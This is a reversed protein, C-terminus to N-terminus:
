VGERKTKIWTVRHRPRLPYSLKVPLLTRAAGGNTPDNQRGARAYRVMQCETGMILGCIM